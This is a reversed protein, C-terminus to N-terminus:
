VAMSQDIAFKLTNLVQTTLKENDLTKTIDLASMLHNILEKSDGTASAAADEMSDNSPMDEIDETDEVDIDEIDEVDEVEEEKKKKKAEFLEDDELDLDSFHDIYASKADFEDDIELDDLEPNIGYKAKRDELEYDEDYENVEEKAETLPQKTEEENLKKFYPNSNEIVKNEKLFKSLNFNDKM